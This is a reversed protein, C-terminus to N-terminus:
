STTPLQIQFETGQKNSRCSITGGADTVLNKTISLGLGSHSSGKTTTHASFLTALVQEPMGPGTDVVRIEIFKKGQANVCHSTFLEIRGGQPMAEAANKLLNTLIQRLTNRTAACTNVTEELHLTCSIQSRAFLSHRYLGVLAEIESNVDAFPSNDEAAQLDKLRFLIQGARALEDQVVELEEYQEDHDALKEALAALYNGIISLPNNAEHVIENVQAILAARDQNNIQQTFSRLSDACTNAVEAAFLTLLRYQPSENRLVSRLPVVLVCFVTDENHLPICGMATCELIRLVQQDIVPSGSADSHTQSTLITRQHAANAILSRSNDLKIALGEEPVCTSELRLENSQADFWFVLSHHYSFLLELTRQLACELEAQTTARSIESTASQVLGIDRVQKALAIQKDHDESQQDSDFHIGLSTAVENVEIEIKNAIENLLSANLEFLQEAAQHEAQAPSGSASIQASLYVIKVLHHADVVDGLPAHHFAIADAAFEGLQWERLLFAGVQPHTVSFHKNELSLAESPSQCADILSQYENPYNTELVLEGLNHLLGCLYAEDANAYSTLIALSRALLACRLSQQWFRRLYGTHTSSFGSFFQQIAATIVITKVTETGLIFLARELSDIRRGRNYYSSNALTVVRAAIAADRSIILSMEQFSAQQGHCADLMDVLVHPLSPLRNTKLAAM